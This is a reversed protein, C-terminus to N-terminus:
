KSFVTSNLRDIQFFRNFEDMEKLNVSAFWSVCCPISCVRGGLCIRRGTGKRRNQEEEISTASRLSEIRQLERSSCRYFHQVWWYAGSTSTTFLVVVVLFYRNKSRVKCLFGGLRVIDFHQGLIRQVFCFINRISATCQKRVTLNIVIIMHQM